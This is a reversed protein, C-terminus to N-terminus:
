LGGIVSSFSAMFAGAILVAILFIVLFIVEQNGGKRSEM